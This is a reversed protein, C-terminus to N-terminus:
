KQYRKELMVAQLLVLAVLDKQIAEPRPPRYGDALGLPIVGARGGAEPPRIHIIRSKIACAVPRYGSFRSLEKSVPSIGYLLSGPCVANARSSLGALLSASALAQTIPVHIGAAEVAVLLADFEALHGRAWERGATDKFTLHTYIGELEINPLDRLFRIFDLANSTQVGLRGLGADVKLYVKAPKQAASSVARASTEDHVTPILGHELLRSMGAPIPGAFMLIPLDVGSARVQQADDFSGTAISHVGARALCNAVPGIGHGYADAKLAAIIHTDPGLQERLREANHTLAGLDIEM